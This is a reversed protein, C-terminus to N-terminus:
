RSKRAESVTPEPTIGDRRPCSESRLAPARILADFPLEISRGNEVAFLTNDSVAWALTDPRFDIDDRIADFDAHLAAAKEAESGYLKGYDRVFNRPQRRYVQGGNNGNEDIVVPRLGAAVLAKACRTGAPGSGIIIVKEDGM